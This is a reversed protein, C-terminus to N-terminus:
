NKGKGKGGRGLETVQYAYSIEIEKIEKAVGGLEAVPCAYSIEIIKIEKAAVGKNPPRAPM